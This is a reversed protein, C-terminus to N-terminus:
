PGGDGIVGADATPLCHTVPMAAIWERILAAGEAHHLVTPLEPMKVGGEESEVRYVMVSADPEGPAIDVARGGAGHGAAAPDKCIGLRLPDTIDIGLLLGSQDSGGNVRHCHACNAELYSRARLELDASGFPDALAHRDAAAPVSALLGMAVYHDLQNAVGGGAAGYDHDRDLQRVRVGLLHVPDLGGHCNNCQVADPVRYTISVHTGAANDWEVPVRAGYQWLRAEHGDADYRYVLADWRGNRRVLLRTEILREASTPDRLDALFGFTKVLVSGEPFVVDGDADITMQEGEPLRFFRHKTAYDSFLPSIVDYPVVDAAPIQRSMDEFLGWESLTAPGAAVPPTSSTDCSAAFALALTALVLSRTM